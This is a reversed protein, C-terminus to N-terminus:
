YCKGTRLDSCVRMAALGVSRGVTLIDYIVGIIEKIGTCIKDREREGKQTETAACVCAIAASM